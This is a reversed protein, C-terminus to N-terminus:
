FRALLKADDNQATYVGVTQGITPEYAQCHSADNIPCATGTFVPFNIPGAKYYLTPREKTVTFASFGIAMVAALLVVSLRKM